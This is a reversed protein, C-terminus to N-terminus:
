HNWNTEGKSRQQLILIGHINQKALRKNQNLAMAESSFPGLMVKFWIGDGTKIKQIHASTFGQANLRLNLLVAAKEARYAGAQVLYQGVPKAMIPRKEYAAEHIPVEMGPLLQYFEFRRVSAQKPHPTPQYSASQYKNAHTELKTVLPPTIKVAWKKTFLFYIFGAALIGGFLGTLLWLGAVSRSTKAIRPSSQVMRRVQKNRCYIAMGEFFM